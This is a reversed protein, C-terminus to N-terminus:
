RIRPVDIDDPPCDEGSETIVEDYGVELFGAAVINKGFLSGRVDGYGGVLIDATPAYLNGIFASYGAIAVDGTGGVYIRTAAPREADGFEAAGTLTLNGRVFLDLEAGPELEIRFRGTATVDGGVFLAAKGGVRLNIAGVGGIQNVFFRGGPLRTQVLGVAANLADADFGALANDNNEEADSVLAAVDIIEGAGCPCPPEIAIAQTHEDGGVDVVAIGRFGAGAPAYLDRAIEVRGFARMERALWADRGVEVVGAVNAAPNFLLDAGARVLGAFRIDEAGAVTFSGGVDAHGSTTYNRNVGVSGARESSTASADFERTELYGAIRTDECSCLAAGFTGEALKGACAGGALVPDAVPLTIDDTTSLTPSVDSESPVGPAGPSLLAADDASGCGLPLVCLFPALRRLSRIKRM